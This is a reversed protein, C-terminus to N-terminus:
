PCDLVSCRSRLRTEHLMEEDFWYGQFLTGDSMLFRGCINSPIMKAADTSDLIIQSLVNDARGCIRCDCNNKIQGNLITADPRQTALILHIGFARGQRAITSLMSEIQALREKRAKDAGTKDLMEALEDCAFVIRDMSILTRRNYEDINACGLDRFLEKRLELTKILKRLIVILDEETLCLNCRAKWPFPFDVGGKFDCIFVRMKKQIAQVLLTKLLVSKGSGTSGGILIHPTKALDVRIPGIYGEGLMLESPSSPLFNNEWKIMTPLDGKAPVALVEIRRKSKGLTISIISINLGAEIEARHDEWACLPLGLPDFILKMARPHDKAHARSLLIPAEYAANVFGIRELANHTAKASPPTGFLVLFGICGLSVLMVLAVSYLDRYMEILLHDQAQNLMAHCIRWLHNCVLLYTSLILAKAPHYIMEALGQVMRQMLVRTTTTRRLQAKQYAM